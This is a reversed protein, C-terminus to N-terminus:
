RIRNVAVFVGLAVALVDFIIRQLSFIIISIGWLPIISVVYSLIVTVGAVAALGKGHKRNVSLGIVEAIVYGAAPALLFNFYFFPLVDILAKWAIGSLIAM